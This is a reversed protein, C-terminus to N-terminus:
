YYGIKVWFVFEGRKLCHPLISILYLFNDGEKNYNKQNGAAPKIVKFKSRLVFWLQSSRNIILFFFTQEVPKFVILSHFALDGRFLSAINGDDGFFPFYFNAALFNGKASLPFGIFGDKDVITLPNVDPRFFFFITDFVGYRFLFFFFIFILFSSKSANTRGGSLRTFKFSVYGSARSLRLLSM